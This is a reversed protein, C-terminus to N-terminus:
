GYHKKVPLLKTAKKQMSLGTQILSNNIFMCWAKKCVCGVYLLWECVCNYIDLSKKASNM